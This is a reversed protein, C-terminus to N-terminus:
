VAIVEYVTWPSSVSASIAFLEYTVVEADEEVDLSIWGGGAPVLIGNAPTLNGIFDVAGDNISRNMILIHLRRPENKVLQAPLSSVTINRTSVRTEAGFKKSAFVAATAGSPM